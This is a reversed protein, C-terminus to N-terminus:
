ADVALYAWKVPIEYDDDSCHWNVRNSATAGPHLWGDPTLVDSGYWDIFDRTHLVKNRVNSAFWREGQWFFGDFWVIRVPRDTNNTVETRYFRVYPYKCRRLEAILEAPVDEQTLPTHKVRLPGPPAVPPAGSAEASRSPRGPTHIGSGLKRLEEAWVEAIVDNCLEVCEDCIHVSPGAILKRVDHQTKGCFDCRPPSHVERERRRRRTFDAPLEM